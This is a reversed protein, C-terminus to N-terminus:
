GTGATLRPSRPPRLVPPPRRRRPDRGPAGHLEAGRDAAVAPRYGADGSATFSFRCVREAHRADPSACHRAFGPRAAVPNRRVRNPDAASRLNRHYEFVGGSGAARLLVTVTFEARDFHWGLADGPGYSMVNLCALPDAMPYLAPKHFLAALFSPLGPWRYIRDLVGGALRDGALTLNSTHLSRENAVSRDGDDVDSFYINHRAEHRHFGAPVHAEVEAVARTVASSRVFGSLSFSGTEAIQKRGRDLVKQWSPDSQRDLPFRETDILAAIDASSTAM